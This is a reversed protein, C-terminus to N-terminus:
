FLHSVPRPRIAPRSVAATDIPTPWSTAPIVPGSPEGTTATPLRDISKVGGDTLSKAIVANPEFSLSTRTLPM